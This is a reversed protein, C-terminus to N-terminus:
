FLHGENFVEWPFETQMAKSLDDYSLCGHFIKDDYEKGYLIALALPTNFARMEQSSAILKECSFIFDNIGIKQGGIIEKWSNSAILSGGKVEVNSIVHIPKGDKPPDIQVSSGYAADVVALEKIPIKIGSLRVDHLPHVIVTKGALDVGGRVYSKMQLPSRFLVMDSAKILRATWPDDKDFNKLAVFVKKAEYKEIAQAKEEWLIRPQFLFLVDLCCNMDTTRNMWEPIFLFKNEQRDNLHEFFFDMVLTDESLFEAPTLDCLFGARKVSRGSEMEKGLGLFDYTAESILSSCAAPKRDETARLIAELGMADFIQVSRKALTLRDKIPLFEVILDFRKEKNPFAVELAQVLVRAYTQDPVYVAFRKTKQDLKGIIDIVTEMPVKQYEIDLLLSHYPEELSFNISELKKLDPSITQELEQAESLWLEHWGQQGNQQAFFNKSSFHVASALEKTLSPEFCCAINVSGPKFKQDIQQSSSLTIVVGCDPLQDNWAFEVERTYEDELPSIDNRFPPSQFCSVDSYVKRLYKLVLRALHGEAYPSFVPGVLHIKKFSPSLEFSGM